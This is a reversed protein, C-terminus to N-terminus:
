ATETQWKAVEDGSGDRKLCANCDSPPSGRAASVTEALIVCEFPPLGANSLATCINGTREIEISAQRQMQLGIYRWVIRRLISCNVKLRCQRDAPADRPTHITSLSKM